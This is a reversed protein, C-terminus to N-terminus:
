AGASPAPSPAVRLQFVHCASGLRRAWRERRALSLRRGLFFYGTYFLGSPHDEVIEFGNGLFNRRWWATRFLWLETLVNGREGHRNQFFPALLYGISWAPLTALRRLRRSWPQGAKGIEGAHAAIKQFATPFATVMTWFRWSVTPMLHVCTGGPKLVRRIEAHLQALDPVHELVNSTFILDFSADPFPVHRGDYDTIPFVRSGAYNSDPIEIAEVEFGRRKLDAAQRGTGAGIELVRAGRPFLGAVREIEADRLQNLFDISFM